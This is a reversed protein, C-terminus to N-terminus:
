ALVQKFADLSSQANCVDQFLEEDIGVLVEEPTANLTYLLTELHNVLVDNARLLYETNLIIGKELDAKLSEITDTM